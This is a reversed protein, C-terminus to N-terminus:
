RQDALRLERLEDASLAPGAPLVLHGDVERLRSGPQEIRVASGFATITVEGAVLGLEERIPLPVVVRGAKDMTGIM